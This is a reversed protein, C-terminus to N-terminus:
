GRGGGCVARVQALYAASDWKPSHEPTHCAHCTAATPRTAQGKGKVHEALGDHCSACEVGRDPDAAPSRLGERRLREDHCRLCAAVDREKAELTAVARAHAHQRWATVAPAHCPLCAAPRHFSAGATQQPATAQEGERQRRYYADVWGQVVPDRPGDTVLLQEVSV